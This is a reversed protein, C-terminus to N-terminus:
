EDRRRRFFALGFIGLVAVFGAPIAGDVGLMSCAAGRGPREAPTVGLEPVAEAVMHDLPTDDLVGTGSPESGAGSTNPSPSSSVSPGGGEGPPGGWRGFTPEACVVPGTWHHRIIYRGQFNNVQGPEAGTELDGNEDHRERGGLIPDAERFMLDAGIDDKEYRAHLRTITWGWTPQDPLVDAGLTLYDNADLTPGPCPDCSSADWSYETVVAGPNQNVTEQFLQRYFTAFDDRVNNVVEINTPITVNDYNAVEYRQGQGLTYVILDQRGSSNILGLRIPINFDPTDYHFRLPSLVAQGDKFTVENPDVKAVFFKSGNQVYPDLYPGANQPINYQNTELWSELGTSDTASLIVVEYEGVKFEAEVTVNDDEPSDNRGGAGSDATPSPQGEYDYEPACPDKEWYEVLRPATLRDLKAFLDNPLTKVDTEQLVVPVPVVMAFDETPGQFDNQISLITRNGERMMVAQTANSFLDASGGGVYFGCFADASQPAIASVLGVFLVAVAWKTARRM